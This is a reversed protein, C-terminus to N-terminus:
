SLKTKTQKNAQKNTQKLITGIVKPTVILKEIRGYSDGLKM